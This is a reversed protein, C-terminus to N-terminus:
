EFYEEKYKMQKPYRYKKKKKSKKLNIKREEKKIHFGVIGLPIQDQRNQIFLVQEQFIKSNNENLLKFDLKLIKETELLKNTPNISGDLAKPHLSAKDEKKFGEIAKKVCNLFLALRDETLLKNKDLGKSLSELFQPPLKEFDNKKETKVSQGKSGTLSSELFDRNQNQFSENKSLDNKLDTALKQIKLIDTKETNKNSSFDLKNQFDKKDLKLLEFSLKEVFRSELNERSAKPQNNLIEFIENLIAPVKENPPKSAKIDLFNLIADMFEKPNQIDTVKEISM